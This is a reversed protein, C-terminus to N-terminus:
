STTVTHQSVLQLTYTNTHTHYVISFQIPATFITKLIKNGNLCAFKSATLYPFRM